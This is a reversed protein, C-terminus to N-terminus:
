EVGQVLKKFVDLAQEAYPSGIQTKDAVQVYEMFQHMLQLMDEENNAPPTKKKEPEPEPKKTTTEPM